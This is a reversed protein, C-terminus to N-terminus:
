DSRRSPDLCPPTERAVCCCVLVLAAPRVVVEKAAERVAGDKHDLLPAVTKMVPSPKVVRVGFGRLAALLCEVAAAVAKPVKATCGKALADQACV